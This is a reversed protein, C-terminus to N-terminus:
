EIVKRGQFNGKFSYVKNRETVQFTQNLHHVQKPLTLNAHCSEEEWSELRYNSPLQNKDKAAEDQVQM